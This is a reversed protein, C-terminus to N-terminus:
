SQHWFLLHLLFLLFDTYLLRLILTNSSYPCLVIFQFSDISFGKSQCVFFFPLAINAIALILYILSLFTYLNCRSICNTTKLYSYVIYYIRFILILLNLIYIDIETHYNKYQMLYHNLFLVFLMSSAKQSKKFFININPVM